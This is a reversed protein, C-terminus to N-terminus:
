VSMISHISLRLRSVYKHGCSNAFWTDWSYNMVATALTIYGQQIEVVFIREISDKDVEKWLKLKINNIQM